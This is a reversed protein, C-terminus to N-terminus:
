RGFIQIAAAVLYITAFFGFSIIMGVVGDVFDNRKSQVDLEFENM